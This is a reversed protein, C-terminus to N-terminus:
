LEHLCEDLLVQPYYKGDEFVSWVIITMNYYLKLTKNLPLSDESKFKIKTFDERHEGSKNNIKEISNKIEDWLKTYKRLVKTKIQLFWLKVNIEMSKNLTDM